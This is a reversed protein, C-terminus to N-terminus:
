LFTNIIEFFLKKLIQEFHHCFVRSSEKRENLSLFPAVVDLMVVSLMVVSPM